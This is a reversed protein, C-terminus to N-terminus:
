GLIIFKKEKIKKKKEVDEPGVQVEDGIMEDDGRKMWKSLRRYSSAVHLWRWRSEQGSGVDSINYTLQELYSWQQFCTVEAEGFFYRSQAHTDSCALCCCM